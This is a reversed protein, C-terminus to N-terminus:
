TSKSRYFVVPSRHLIKALPHLIQASEGYADCRAFFVEGSLEVVLEPFFGYSM